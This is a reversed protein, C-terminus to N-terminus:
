SKEDWKTKTGGNYPRAITTDSLMFDKISEIENTEIDALIRGFKELGPNIITVFKGSVVQSLRDRAKIALEKEYDSSGKLEPTDIGDIRCLSRVNKGKSKWCLRITDGDYVSSCFAMEGHQLPLFQSCKDYDFVTNEISEVEDKPKYKLIYNFLDVINIM